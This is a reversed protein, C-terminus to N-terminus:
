ATDRNSPEKTKESTRAAKLLRIRRKDRPLFLTFTTGSGPESHVEIEGGHDRVIRQVIMLGLGSGSSKTTHYAEFIKGLQDPSIGPGSDKFSIAVFRDTSSLTIALLGGHPMSQVANKIINFFAQKMQGKDVHATPLHDSRNVEVLIDRDEIERKMVKLTNELIEPIKACEFRPQVPRIAQLFQSIIKDLRSVEDRAIDLLEGLHQGHEVPLQKAERDLLQLHINLSNLPNGIEHAVGAALLTIANLKESELTHAEHERERSIDRLIVVVGDERDDVMSLPVIYFDLFRHEPYTIEIERSMLRSWEGEDLEMVREWDMDRLYRRISDGVAIEANFGLFKEAARNAYTILGKGDLVVVGEQIAQFITELLGKEQVLHLIHTQLSDADLVDLRAILKDLFGSKM